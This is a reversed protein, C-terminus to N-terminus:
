ATELSTGKWAYRRKLKNLYNRPIVGSHQLQGVIVGPAVGVKKALDLIAAHSHSNIRLDFDGILMSSAFSNAESEVGVETAGDQVDDLDLFPSDLSHLMVHGAEHFFTFWFHDDSLYRASLQIMPAGRYTRAVGSVPVGEPARVVTVLVGSDACLKTLEPIFVQPRRTWTLRRAQKLAERFGQPSFSADLDIEDAVLECARYWATTAATDIPYTESTRYYAYDVLPEYRENFETVSSVDFFNLCADIREHWDSPSQIWGWRAMQTIPFDGSWRDASVRESDDHYQADRAIWFEASGGIMSELVRAMSITISLRGILLDHIEDLPMQLPGILDTASLGRSRLAAEITEGPPSAWRPALGNMQRQWRQLSSASHPYSFELRSKRERQGAM